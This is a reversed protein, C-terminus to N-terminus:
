KGKLEEMLKAEFNAITMMNQLQLAMKTSASLKPKGKELREAFEELVKIQADETARKIEEITYKRKM